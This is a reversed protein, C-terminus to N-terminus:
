RVSFVFPIDLTVKDTPIEKPFAPFPAAKDVWKLAAEDVFADGSSEKVHKELVGGDKAFVVAVLVNGTRRKGNKKKPYVRFSQIHRYMRGMHARLAEAAKGGDQQAGAEVLEQVPIQPVRAEAAAQEPRPIDDDLKLEVIEEPPEILEPPPRDDLVPPPAVAAVPPPAIAYDNAPAASMVLEALEPPRTEALEPPPVDDEPPPLDVAEAALPADPPPEVPEIEPERETVPPPPEAEVKRIEEQAASAEVPATDLAAVTMEDQGTSVIGEIPLGIEIKIQDDGTGLDLADSAPGSNWVFPLALAAHAMLSVFFMSLRLM